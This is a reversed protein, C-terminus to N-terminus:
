VKAVLAKVLVVSQDGGSWKFGSAIIRVLDGEVAKDEPDDCTAPSYTESEGSAFIQSIGLRGGQSIVRDRGQYSAGLENDLTSLMRALTKAADLEYQLRENERMTVVKDGAAELKANLTEVQAFLEAIRQEADEFRQLSESLSSESARLDRQLAAIESEKSLKAWASQTYKNGEFARAVLSALSEDGAVSGILELKPIANLCDQPSMSALTKELGAQIFARSTPRNVLLNWGDLKVLWILSAVDLGQWFGQAKAVSSQQKILVETLRQRESKGWPLAELVLPLNTLTQSPHSKLRKILESVTAEKVMALDPSTLSLVLACVRGFESNEIQGSTATSPSALLMKSLAVRQVVTLAEAESAALQLIAVAVSLASQAIKGVLEVQTSTLTCGILYAHGSKTRSLAETVKKISAADLLKFQPELTSIWDLLEGAVPFLPLEQPSRNDLLALFQSWPDNADLPVDLVPSKSAKKAPKAPRTPEVSNTNSDVPTEVSLPGPKKTSGLDVWNVDIPSAIEVESDSLWYLPGDAGIKSEPSLMAKRTKNWAKDWIEDAIGFSLVIKKLDTTSIAGLRKNSSARTNAAKAAIEQAHCRAEWLIEELLQLPNSDFLEQNREPQVLSFFLPSNLIVKRVAPQSSKSIEGTSWLVDFNKGRDDIIKGFKKTALEVAGFTYGM